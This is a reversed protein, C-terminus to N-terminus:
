SQHAFIMISNLVARISGCDLMENIVKKNPSSYAICSESDATATSTSHLPVFALKLEGDINLDRLEYVDGIGNTSTM